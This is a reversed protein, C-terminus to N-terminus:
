VKDFSAIGRSFSIINTVYLGNALFKEDLLRFIQISRRGLSVIPPTKMYLSSFLLDLFHRFILLRTNGNLLLGRCLRGGGGQSDGILLDLADQTVAGAMMVALQTDSGEISTVAGGCVTGLVQFVLIPRVASATPLKKVSSVAIDLVAGLPQHDAVGVLSRFDAQAPRLHLLPDSSPDLAAVVQSCRFLRTISIHLPVIGSKAADGERCGSVAERRGRLLDILPIKRDDRIGEQVIRRKPVGVAVIVPLGGRHLPEPGDVPRREGDLVGGKHAQVEVGRFVM